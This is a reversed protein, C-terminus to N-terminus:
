HSNKRSTTPYAPIRGSRWILFVGFAVAPISLLQGMNLPLVAEFEVQNEKIFELFFRLGYVAALMLGFFFGPRRWLSRNQHLKWLIVFLVFYTVSEYLQAPHRPIADVKDFVVGAGNKTPAGLIESNFFNGLRVLGGCLPVPTSVRDLLWLYRIGNRRAFLWCALIVGITGGHSALGGEWVKLIRLPDHLYIGPEYFLCHGLRAGGITGVIIYLLLRDVLIESHGEEVFFRRVLRFGSYFAMAFLFGYWRVVLPGLAILDPGYNWHLVM